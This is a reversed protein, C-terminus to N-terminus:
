LGRSVLDPVGTSNLQLRFRELEEECARTKPSKGVLRRLRSWLSLEPDIVAVLFCGGDAPIFAVVSADARRTKPRTDSPASRRGGRYEQWASEAFPVTAPLYVCTLVSSM